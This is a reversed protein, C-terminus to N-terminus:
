YKPIPPYERTHFWRDSYYDIQTKQWSHLRFALDQFMDVETTSLDFREMPDNSLNYLRYKNSRSDYVLKWGSRIIGYEHALSTQAVMYISKDLAPTPGILSEGQFSPHRPLGLLDLISPAVDIHQVPRQDIGPKLGPAHIILPVRMVEDFLYSAHAFFGHEYFAQGHDGTLVIVSNDLVRRRDLYQFLRDIQADVYALSDAYVDKVTSVRDVPFYGFRIKFDISTPSFRRPATEPIRYPLHASQLNLYLFFPQDGQQDLWKIAEAVTVRDDVSGAQNTGKAWQAFGIDGAELLRPETSAPAHFLMDLNSTRLYNIMGEWNENSSSFIATRYGLSKLVDYILVRPYSMKEPYVHRTASRLPYHSSLPSLVAYSTHSSQAWANRFIRSRQAIIETSPMVTRSSGYARLQDARLSEVIIFIVNFRKIRAPDTKALYQEASIIARRTTHTLDFKALHHNKKELKLETLDAVAQGIPTTKQLVGGVYVKNFDLYPQSLFQSRLDAVITWLLCFGTTLTLYQNMSKQRKEDMSAVFHPIHLTIVTLLVSSVTIATVVDADVWHFVQM